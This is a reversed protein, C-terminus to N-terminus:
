GGIRQGNRLDSEFLVIEEVQEVGPVEGLLNAIAGSTVDLGFPWGDGQPGGLHPSLYTAIADLCRQRVAAPARGPQVRVMAAVSVGLYTPTGIELSTGIVRRPELHDRLTTYLDDDLALDDITIADAPRGPDPVVLLRSPGGADTPPVCLSRSVRPSAEKALREHDGATVARGGSVLTLPARLKANDITEPDIGGTAPTPNTVRDVYPVASRLVNLAGPGVNGRAGGGRRYGSVWVAAGAPPIAGHQTWSGDPQRIRPGFSIRGSVSDWTYHRDDPGSRSFDTVETWPEVVEGIRLEVREGDRRPLVPSTQVDFAQTPQGSSIGIYEAGYPEAHEAPATGGIAHVVVDRILPSTRYGAGDPGPALLRLRLWFARESGVTLPLHGMPVALQISGDRNLGGTSDFELRCALWGDATWVEWVLPPRTPNVGIGEVDATVDIRIVYGGLSERFGLYFADGPAVPDSPFVRVVENALVLDQQVDSTRGEDPEGRGDSPATWAFMREPQAVLLDSVTSFVIPDDGSTSVESGAPVLVTEDPVTSFAFTVDARAAVAPYPSVGVLDLFSTYVRDPVRNLRYLTLETMWAFLEILAVGPDSVNHNTWEPLFRPIMRKAEDVLDQFRRDDLDPRPFSM